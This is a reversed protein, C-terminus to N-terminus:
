WKHPKRRRVESQQSQSVPNGNKFEGVVKRGNAFTYTGQGHKKNNKFEGIYKAGDPWTFRGQGNRQGDRWDGVYQEGNPWTFTGRGNPQGDRVEGVYKGGDPFNVEGVCNTWRAADYEGRCLGGTSTGSSAFFGAIAVAAIAMSAIILTTARFSKKAWRIAALSRAGIVKIQTAATLHSTSEGTVAKASKMREGAQAAYRQAFGVAAAITNKLSKTLAGLHQRAFAATAHNADTEREIVAKCGVSRLAAKYEAATEANLARKIVMSPSALLAMAGEVPIKCIRALQPAVQSVELGNLVSNLIVKYTAM